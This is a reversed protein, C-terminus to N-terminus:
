VQWRRLPQPYKFSMALPASGCEAPPCFASPRSAPMSRSPPHSSSGPGALTGGGTAAVTFDCLADGGETAGYRGDTPAGAGAASDASTASTALFDGLMVGGGIASVVTFGGLTAGFAPTALAALAVGAVDLGGLTAGPAAFAGLMAGLGAADTVGFFVGLTAGAGFAVGATVGAGGKTASRL